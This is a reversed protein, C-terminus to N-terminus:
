MMGLDKIAAAAGPHMPIGAAKFAASGAQPGWAGHLKKMRAMGKKGLLYGVIAKADAESVQQSALLVVTKGDKGAGLSFLGRVKRNQKKGEANWAAKAADLRVLGIDVGRKKKALLTLNDKDGKTAQINVGVSDVDLAIARVLKNGIDFYASEVGGSGLVLEAAAAPGAFTAAMVGVLAVALCTKLIRYAM